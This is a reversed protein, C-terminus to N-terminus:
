VSGVIQAHEPSEGMLAGMARLSVFSRRLTRGPPRINSIPEELTTAVAKIGHECIEAAGPGLSGSLAVAPVGAAKAQEGVAQVTKGFCSQWDTRGEGTVGLDADM